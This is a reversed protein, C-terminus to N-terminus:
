PPDQRGLAENLAAERWALASLGAIRPKCLEILSCARCRGTKYIAPPTTESQLVARLEFITKETQARLESDFPVVTRRKTQAYYLAGEPVARQTMEELCLAQACLQVEDARHLKPKGRKIEIPYPTEAGNNDPLFEVLDAIGAIALRASALDLASVRRLGRVRRGGPIDSAAHLVDGEATLRNDAWQQELHILAAQRMCFVAHQLASIPIPEGLSDGFQRERSGTM